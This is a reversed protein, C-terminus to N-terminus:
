GSNRKGAKVAKGAKRYYKVAEVQDKEVGEEKHYMIGLNHQAQAYGTEASKRFWKAAEVHNREVGHGTM